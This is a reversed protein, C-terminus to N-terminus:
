MSSSCLRGEPLCPVELGTNRVGKLLSCATLNRGLMSGCELFAETNDGGRLNWHLILCLNWYYKLDHM